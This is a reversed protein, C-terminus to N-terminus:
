DDGAESLDVTVRAGSAFKFTALRVFEPEDGFLHLDALDSRRVGVEGARTIWRVEELDDLGGFEEVIALWDPLDSV